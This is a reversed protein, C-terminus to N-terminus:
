HSRETRASLTNGALWRTVHQVAAVCEEGMEARVKALYAHAHRVAGVHNGAADLALLLRTAIRSDYPDHAALGRWLSLAAGFDGRAECSRALTEVSHAYQTALGGRTTEVWREFEPADHIFAGDFFPGVYLEVVRAHDGRHFAERFAEVDTAIVAGNLVLDDGVSIIATRGLAHRLVYLSDALFHRARATSQEPWFWAILKDRSVGRPAHAALVGLLALRRRQVAPGRTPGGGPDFGAGGFFHASAM